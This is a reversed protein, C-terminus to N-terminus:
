KEATAREFGWGTSAPWSGEFVLPGKEPDGVLRYTIVNTSQPTDKYGVSLIYVPAQQPHKVVIVMGNGTYSQGGSTWRAFIEHGVGKLELVAQYTPKETDPVGPNWGVAKYTGPIKEQFTRRYADEEASMQASAPLLLSGFILLLLFPHLINKV